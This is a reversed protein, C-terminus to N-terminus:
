GFIIQNNDIWKLNSYNYKLNISKLIKRSTIDIIHIHQNFYEDIFITAIKSNDISIDPSFYNGNKPNISKSKKSEINYYAIISKSAHEWRKNSKYESWILTNNRLNFTNSSLTGPETIKKEKGNYDIYIISYIDSLSRKGSIIGEKYVKPNTYSTFEKTKKITLYNTPFTKNTKWLSDLDLLTQKYLNPIINYKKYKKIGANYLGKSLRSIGFLTKLPIILRKAGFIKVLNKEQIPLWTIVLEIITPCLTKILDTFPKTSPFTRKLM